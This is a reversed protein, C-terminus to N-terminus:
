VASNFLLANLTLDTGTRNIIPPTFLNSIGIVTLLLYVPFELEFGTVSIPTKDDRM